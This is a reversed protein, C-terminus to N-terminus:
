GKYYGKHHSRKVLLHLNIELNHINLLLKKWFLTLKSGNNQILQLLWQHDTGLSLNEKKAPWTKASWWGQTGWCRHEPSRASGAVPTARRNGLFWLGRRQRGKWMQFTGWFTCGPNEPLFALCFVSFNATTSLHLKAKKKDQSWILLSKFKRSISLSLTPNSSPLSAKDM